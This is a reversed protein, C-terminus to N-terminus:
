VEFVEYLIIKEAETKNIPLRGQWLRGAKQSCPIHTPLFFFLDILGKLERRTRQSTWQRPTPGGPTSRCAPDRFRGRVPARSARTREPPRPAEPRPRQAVAPTRARADGSDPVPSAPSISVPSVETSFDVRGWFHRLSFARGWTARPPRITLTRVTFTRPVNHGRQCRRTSAGRRPTM